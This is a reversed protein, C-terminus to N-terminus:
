RAWEITHGQVLRGDKNSVHSLQPVWRAVRSPAVNILHAAEVSSGYPQLNNAHILARGLYGGGVDYAGMRVFVSSVFVGSDNTVNVHVRTGGASEEVKLIKVRIIGAPPPASQPATAPRSWDMCSGLVVALGIASALILVCLNGASISYWPRKASM